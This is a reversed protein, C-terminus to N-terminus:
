SLAAGVRANIWESFDFQKNLSQDYIKKQEKRVEVVYKRLLAKKKDNLTGESLLRLVEAIKAHTPFTKERALLRRLADLRNEFLKDHTEFLVLQYLLRTNILLEKRLHIGEANLIKNFWKTAGKFNGATLEAVGMFFFLDYLMPSFRLDMKRISSEIKKVTAAGAQVRHTKYYLYLESECTNIFVLQSLNAAKINNEALFRRQQSILGEVENFKGLYFMVNVLNNMNLHYIGPLENIFQPLADMLKKIETFVHYRRAQDNRVASLLGVSSHYYYHTWFSSVEPRSPYSDHLEKEMADIQAPTVNGKDIRIQINFAHKMLTTQNRIIELIRLEEALSRNLAVDDEDKIFILTEWRVLMLLTSFKELLYAEKKAKRLMKRCHGFLGRNFLMEVTIVTNSYRSLFTKERNFLNLSDIIQGYLYHKESALHKVFPEGAFKKRLAAEDYREQRGIADFLRIYNNMGSSIHRQAYIKFHRKESMSMSHILQHLDETPKM